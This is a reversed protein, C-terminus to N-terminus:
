PCGMVFADLAFLRDDFAAEDGTLGGACRLANPRNFVAFSYTGCDALAGAAFAVRVAAGAHPALPQVGPAGGFDGITRSRRAAIGGPIAFRVDLTASEIAEEGDNRVTVVVDLAQGATGPGPDVDPDSPDFDIEASVVALDCSIPPDGFARFEAFNFFPEVATKRVRLYRFPLRTASAAAWTTFAPFATAGRAALLRVGSAFTPDDSAVVQFSRRAFDQDIDPRPEIAVQRLSMPGGLDVEFWELDGTEVASHWGSVQGFANQVLGDVGGAPEGAFDPFSEFTSASAAGLLARDPTPFIELRASGDLGSSDTASFVVEYHYRDLDGGHSRAVFSAQRGVGGDYPHVHDDHRILVSWRTDAAAIIGDDPDRAFGAISISQDPDFTLSPHPALLKVRPPLSGVTVRLATSAFRAGDNVTLTAVYSGNSSYRHSPNPLPSRAGDGFSWDFELPLGEPDLSGVSSFAVDLPAYGFSPTASAVAVPPLDASGPPVIRFLVGSPSGFETAFNLVYLSGDRGEMLDVPNFDHGGTAFTAVGQLADNADVIARRIWHGTYDAFFFNGRYEAPFATGTVFSAGCIASGQGHDYAVLPATPAAGSCAGPFAGQYGGQPFPGEHCPWGFNAGRTAVNVEEWSDWGVDNVYLISTGPKMAFHFPNRLGIAWVKSRVANPTTYYPNDPLASGDAPDVRLVKGCLSDVNLSRLAFSDVGTFYAGDGVTVYLMGDAGFGLDGGSHSDSDTPIDDLLVLESGPLAVDGDATLRSVRQLRSEGRPPFPPRRPTVYFVYLYGNSPFAPDLALGLLGRDWFDFVGLTAFPAPLLTGDAAIVRIVGNQQAVFLRGDPAEAMATPRDLGTAVVDESFAAPVDIALAAPAAAILVVSPLLGSSHRMM